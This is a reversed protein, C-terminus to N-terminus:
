SQPFGPNEEKEKKEKKARKAQKKEKVTKAPKNNGKKKINQGKSMIKRRTIVLGLVLISVATIIVMMVVIFRNKELM